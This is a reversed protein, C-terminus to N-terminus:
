TLHKDKSSCYAAHSLLGHYCKLLNYNFHDPPSSSEIQVEDTNKRHRAWSLPSSSFRSEESWILRASCLQIPLPCYSQMYLCIECHFPHVMASVGCYFLTVIWM